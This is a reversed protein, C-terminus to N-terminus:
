EHVQVVASIPVLWFGKKATFYLNGDKSRSSGVKDLRFTPYGVGAMSCCIKSMLHDIVSEEPEGRSM